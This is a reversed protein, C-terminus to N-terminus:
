KQQTKNLVLKASLEPANPPTFKAVGELRNDSVLNLEIKYEFDGSVTLTFKKGDFKGNSIPAIMSEDYGAEGAVAAGEQRLIFIVGRSLPQGDEGVFEATGTWKGSLDASYGPLATLAMLLLCALATRKM